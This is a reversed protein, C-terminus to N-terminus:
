GRTSRTEPHASAAHSDWTEATVGRRRLQDKRIRETQTKPLSDVIEIYRPAAFRPLVRGAQEAVWAPEVSCGDICVVTLMVEDETGEGDSAVAFAAVEAIGDLKGMATEVEFSSINEGRRRICDNMRDVFTVCGTADMTAADGTHFWLNRWTETTKAPLDDYGSMLGFPVRPRVAIEGVEDPEMVDDTEPDVVRLEFYRDYPFGCTGPRPDSVRGWLPINVETMGYAPLVTQVGFRERLALDHWAPNPAPVVLRLAHDSDASSPPQAVLSHSMMGILNTVTCGNERLDTTWASASFKERVVATAGAVLSAYLQMFLANVHFLPMSIYYTDRHSLGGLEIIGMGFLYCHAHPMLVGKSPGTTGSTYMICALDRYGPQAGAYGDADRWEQFDRTGAAGPSGCVLTVFDDPIDPRVDDVVGLLRSHCIVVKVRASRLQHALFEGVLGTNIPVFVAGLWAIGTWVRVFDVSNPLLVAVREGPSVGLSALHGAVKRADELTQAFSISPGGILTVFPKDGLEEAQFQLVEPLAWHHHDDLHEYM